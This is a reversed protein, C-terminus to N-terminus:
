RARRRTDDSAGSRCAHPTFETAMGFHIGQLSFNM